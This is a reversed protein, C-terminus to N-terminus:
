NSEKYLLSDLNKIPYTLEEGLDHSDESTVKGTILLARELFEPMFHAKVFEPNLRVVNAIFHLEAGSTISLPRPNFETIFEEESINPAIIVLPDVVKNEVIYPQITRSIMFDDFVVFGFEELSTCNWVIKEGTMETPDLIPTLFGSDPSEKERWITQPNEQAISKLFDYRLLFPKKNPLISVGKSMFDNLTMINEMLEPTKTFKLDSTLMIYEDQALFGTVFLYLCQFYKEEESTLEKFDNAIQDIIRCDM